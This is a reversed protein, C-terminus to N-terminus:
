SGRSSNSKSARTRCLGKTLARVRKLETRSLANALEKDNHHAQMEDHQLAPELEVRTYPM